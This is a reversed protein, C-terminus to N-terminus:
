GGGGKVLFLGSGGNGEVVALVGKIREEGL